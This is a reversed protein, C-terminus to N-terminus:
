YSKWRKAKESFAEGLGEQSRKEKERDVGENETRKKALGMNVIAKKGGKGRKSVRDAYELIKSTEVM